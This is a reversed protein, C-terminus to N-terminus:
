RPQPVPPAPGESFVKRRAARRRLARNAVFAFLAWVSGFCWGAMVDSPWHVGLYVRSCGILIVLVGAIAMLYAKASARKQTEGLMAAVTLFIAASIMAHGSPFSANSVRALHPVLEPRPRNLSLKFLTDLVSAGVISALLWAAEARRHVYLLFGVAAGGLLWQLTFGGLASLDIASQELWPPGIPVDLHGPRRLALLLTSDLKLSEGMAIKDVLVIAFGLASVAALILAPWLWRLARPTLPPPPAPKAPDAITSVAFSAESM